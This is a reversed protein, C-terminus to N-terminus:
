LCTLARILESSAAHGLQLMPRVSLSALSVCPTHLCVFAIQNGLQLLRVQGILQSQLQTKAKVTQALAQKKAGAHQTSLVKVTTM